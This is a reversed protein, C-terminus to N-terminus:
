KGPIPGSPLYPPVFPPRRGVIMLVIGGIVLLGSLFLDGWGILLIWPYADHNIIRANPGAMLAESFSINPSHTIAVVLIVIGLLFGLVGVILMLLGTIAKGTM